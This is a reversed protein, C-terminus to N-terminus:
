LGSGKKGDQVEIYTRSESIDRGPIMTSIQMEKLVVADGIETVGNVELRKIVQDKANYADVRLFAWYESSIWYRVKSYNSAGPPKAEFLWAALTKISDTGLPQVQDWRFFDLSLDEYTIDSGLIKQKRDSGSVVQWAARSNARKEVVTQEASLTVRLQLPEEKFEYVMVRDRTRLIIPYVKKGSRIIGQLTFDQLQMNQWLRAQMMEVPPVKGKPDHAHAVSMCGLWLALGAASGVQWVTIKNM